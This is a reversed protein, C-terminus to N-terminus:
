EIMLPPPAPDAQQAGPPVTACGYGGPNPTITTVNEGDFDDDLLTVVDTLNELLVEDILTGVNGSGEKQEIIIKGTHTVTPTWTTSIAYFDADNAVTFDQDMEDGCRVRIVLGGSGLSPASGAVKMSIKYSKGSTFTFDDKSTLQGLELPPASAERTGQLDVYLGNGPWIDWLGLGVLDVSGRTVDWNVFGDYNLQAMPATLTEPVCNGSCLNVNLDSPTFGINGYISAFYGGTALKAATEFSDGWVRTGYVVIVGGSDRFTRAVPVPDTGTYQADTFLVIIRVGGDSPFADIVARLASYLDSKRTTSPISQIASIIAPGDKSFDILRGVSDGFNWVSFDDRGFSQAGIWASTIEKACSLKTAYTSSFPQTMSKSNDILIAVHQHADDCSAVIDLQAFATLDQWAASITVNGPSTGTAVGLQNISALQANSVSFTVGQTLEIEREGSQLTVTYEKTGGPQAIAYEPRLILRAFNKCEEPHADAYAPDRCDPLTSPTDGSCGDM